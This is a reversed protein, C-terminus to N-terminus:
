RGKRGSEESRNGEAMAGPRGLGIAKALESRQAAYSAAVM